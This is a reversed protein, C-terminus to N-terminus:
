ENEYHGLSEYKIDGNFYLSNFLWPIDTIKSVDIDNLDDIATFNDNDEFQNSLAGDNDSEFPHAL